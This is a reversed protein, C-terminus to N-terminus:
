GEAAVVTSAVVVGRRCADVAATATAATAPDPAREGMQQLLDVVQKVNRVFDGGTMEEAALVAGLEAGSAWEHIGTVLGPDPPRTLPLGADHETNALDRAIREIGRFRRRLDDGPWRRPPMPEDGEPGRREYTYVSVLAALSPPDLGDLLGGRVSEAVLLDSETYLGALLEGAPSLAWGDVYGWAELIGLIRDLQRALTDTRAAARRELRAVRRALTEADEAARVRTARRPDSAAPHEELARALDAGRDGPGAPAAGAHARLRRAAEKRFPVQEPRFPTPLELRGASRASALERRGLRAPRAQETVVTARAPGPRVVVVRGRPTEIVDGPRVEPPSLLRRGDRRDAAVAAAIRRYEEIDGPGDAARARLRDLRGRERDLQRELTVVDHDTRYQAFSLNLLHHAEEREYRRVLNVAMNYTPRFSSRLPDTRRSALSAVHAFPVFPSWCVLSYGIEDIGRRGARGALQTYQGPTLLEHREGTFKSLNEVVVSRAPMNVGLALTETAFVVKVLGATFAEEVAEKLPPVVGAHHAAFGAELAELWWDHDLAALEADDLGDTHTRAIDRILPREDPTTLHLGADLCQEVAADCGSRSFVFVIAPLMDRGALHDVVDVRWPTSFRSRRRPGPPRGGTRGHRDYRDGDPNPRPEGDPGPLFTPIVVLDDREHDDVAYLHVLEVPRREEIVADTSGRVTRIWAAVEEANSVTASLCVLDVEPALHIIVEEWVAGRQPDQLYHVEDLVVVDLGDLGPSRAYIMNRLVETTMVVVSAEGRIANDGTLLGVRDRGYRAGLDHFKQNSLAKLPTTYFARGGRDLAREIAYEAVVTKGSGTPAAVLVSRGADIADLARRQFSDLPFPRSREFADRREGV